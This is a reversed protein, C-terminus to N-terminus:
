KQLTKVYKKLRECADKVNALSTAVNIRLFSEGGKGFQKGPSVFLGTQERLEKAFVDSENSYYSIDLWLLYTAKNDILHLEPLEKKIFESIYEKNKFIYENCEKNWQEGYKYAAITAYPAVYNPEGLDDQGIFHSIFGLFDKNKCAIVSSQIGAINFTKTPAWLAIAEDTVTLISNLENGPEVIDGHIEDSILMVEHKTCLDSIRKLEEKSWIRGVPNHPNCLLLCKTKEQKLLEELNDFDISYNGDKYVLQNDLQRLGNNKICNFFVHYVPVMVVVSSGKPVLHKFLSDIAAVVSTCFVMQDSKINVHHKKNWWEAACEFYEKPCESYGYADIDARSKIADKIEPLVHFDMDAVWMPLENDKVDWKCSASGKRNVTENFNYKSM